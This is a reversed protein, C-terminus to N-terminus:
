TLSCALKTRPYSLSRRHARWGDLFQIVPRFAQLGVYFMQLALKTVCQQTAIGCRSVADAALNCPAFRLVTVNDAYAFHQRREQLLVSGRPAVLM